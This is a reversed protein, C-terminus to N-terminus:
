VCIHASHASSQLIAASEEAIFLPPGDQALAVDLGPRNTGLQLCSSIFREIM